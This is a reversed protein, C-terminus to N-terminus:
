MVNSANRETLFWGGRDKDYEIVGQNTKIYTLAQSLKEKTVVHGRQAFKDVFVAANEIPSKEKLIEQAINGMDTWSLKETRQTAIVSFSSAPAASSKAPSSKSLIKYDEIFRDWYKAEQIAVDRKALAEQLIPHQTTDMPNVKEIDSPLTSESASSTM